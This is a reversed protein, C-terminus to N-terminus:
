TLRFILNIKHFDNKNLKIQKVVYCNAVSPHFHFFLFRFFFFDWFVPGYFCISLLVSIFDLCEIYKYFICIPFICCM